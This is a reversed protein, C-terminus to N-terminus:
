EGNSKRRRKGDECRKFNIAVFQAYSRFIWALNTNGEMNTAGDFWLWKEFRKIETAM